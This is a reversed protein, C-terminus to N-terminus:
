NISFDCHSCILNYHKYKLNGINCEDCKLNKYKKLCRKREEEYSLTYSLVESELNNLEIIIFDRLKM